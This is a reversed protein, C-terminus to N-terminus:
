ARVCVCVCESARESAQDGDRRTRAQRAYTTRHTLRALLGPSALVTRRVHLSTPVAGVERRQLLLPLATTMTLLSPRKVTRFAPTREFTQKDTVVSVFLNASVAPPRAPPRRGHQPFKRDVRQRASV